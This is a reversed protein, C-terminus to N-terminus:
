DTIKIRAGNQEVTITKGEQTLTANLEFTNSKEVRRAKIIHKFINLDEEDNSLFNELQLATTINNEKLTTGLLNISNNLNNNSQISEIIAFVIIAIKLENDKYDINDKELLQMIKKQLNKSTESEKEIEYAEMLFYLISKYTCIAYNKGNDNTIM